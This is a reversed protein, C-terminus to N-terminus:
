RGSKRILKGLKTIAASRVFRAVSRRFRGSLGPEYPLPGLVPVGARAALIQVGDMFLAPDGRFKNVILGAVLAREEPELLWLTGLLQAFIGGRDIDGALLVPSQAYCAVAMNVIDGARLNLEAPSGAGEIIILDYAARLRDLAALTMGADVSLTLDDPDYHAVGNLRTTDLAIDYRAPPMGIALKTRLGCPILALKEAAAFRVVEAVEEASAPRVIAAPVVGDVAYQACDSTQASIASAGLIGELRSFSSTAPSSM